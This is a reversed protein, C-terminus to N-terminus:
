KVHYHILHNIDDEDLEITQIPHLLGYHVVAKERAAVWNSGLLQETALHNFPGTAEPIEFELTGDKAELFLFARDGHNPVYLSKMGAFFRM